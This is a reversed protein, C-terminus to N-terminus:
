FGSTLSNYETTFGDLLPYLSEPILGTRRFYTLLVQHVFLFQQDTQISNNRQKRVELLYVSMEELTGGKQLVEMAHQLLVISGTRGIGASCHIIIPCKTNKFSDLLHLPALDAPPVGRDPWDIWHYHSCSHTPFGPIKVELFTIEVKSKTEFPFTYQEQSKFFVQVNNFTMPASAVTPFYVACKKSKLLKELCRVVICVRSDIGSKLTSTSCRGSSPLIM